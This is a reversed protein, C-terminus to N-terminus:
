SSPTKEQNGERSFSTRLVAALHPDIAQPWREVATVVIVTSHLLVFFVLCPAPKELLSGREDLGVAGRLEDAVQLFVAPM